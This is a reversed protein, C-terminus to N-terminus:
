NKCIDIFNTSCNMFMQCIAAMNNKECRYGSISEKSPVHIEKEKNIGIDKSITCVHTCFVLVWSTNCQCGRINSMQLSISTGECRNHRKNEM